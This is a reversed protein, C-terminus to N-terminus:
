GNVAELNYRIYTTTEFNEEGRPIGQYSLVSQPPHVLALFVRAVGEDSPTIEYYLTYYAQSSSSAVKGSRELLKTQLSPTANTLVPLPSAPMAALPAARREALISSAIQAAFLETKAQSAVKLGSSLLGCLAVLAFVVVGLAIMVEILSFGRLPLRLKESIDPSSFRCASLGNGCKERRFGQNCTHM